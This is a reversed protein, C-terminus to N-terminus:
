GFNRPQVLGFVDGKFVFQDVEMEEDAPAVPEIEGGLVDHGDVFQVPVDFGEEAPSFLMQVDAV